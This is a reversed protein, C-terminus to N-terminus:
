EEAANRAIAYCTGSTLKNLVTITVTTSGAIVAIIVFAVHYRTTVVRRGVFRPLCATFSTKIAFIAEFPRARRAPILWM